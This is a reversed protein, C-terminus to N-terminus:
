LLCHLCDCAQSPDVQRFNREPGPCQSFTRRVIHVSTIDTIQTVLIKFFTFAFPARTTRESIQCIRCSSPIKCEQLPTCYKITKM